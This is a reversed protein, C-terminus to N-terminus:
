RALGPHTPSSRRRKPFAPSAARADLATQHAHCEHCVGMLVEDRHDDPEGTHHVETSKGTCIGRFALRCRPDRRLIRPRIRAAWGKPLPVRRRGQSM